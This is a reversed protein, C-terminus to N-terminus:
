CCCFWIGPTHTHNNDVNVKKTVNVRGLSLRKLYPLKDFLRELGETIKVGREQTESDGAINSGLSLVKLGGLEGVKQLIPLLLIPLVVIAPLEMGTNLM